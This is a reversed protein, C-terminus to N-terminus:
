GGGGLDIGDEDEIDEEPTGEGEGQDGQGQNGEGQNDEDQNGDNRNGQDQNGQDQNGQGENGPPEAPRPAPGWVELTVTSGEDVMGDPSVAAVEDAQEGGPNAREARAPELGAEALDAAAEDYPRGVYDDADVEVQGPGPDEDPQDAANLMGWVLLPVLV